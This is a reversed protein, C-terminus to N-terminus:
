VHLWPRSLATMVLGTLQTARTQVCGAMSNATQASPSTLWLHMLCPNQTSATSCPWVKNRADIVLGPKLEMIYFDRMGSLAATHMRAASELTTIVEGTAGREMLCGSM